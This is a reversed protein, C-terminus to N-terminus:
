WTLTLDTQDAAAVLKIRFIHMYFLLIDNLVSLSYNLCQISQPHSPQQVGKIIAHLLSLDERKSALVIIM